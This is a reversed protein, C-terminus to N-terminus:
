LRIDFRKRIERDINSDLRKPSHTKLIERAKIRARVRGDLSGSKEWVERNQRDALSPRFYEQRM